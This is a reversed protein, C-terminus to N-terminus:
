EMIILRIQDTDDDIVFGFDKKESFSHIVVPSSEDYAKLEDVLDGITWEAMPRNEMRQLLIIHKLRAIESRLYDIRAEYWHTPYSM